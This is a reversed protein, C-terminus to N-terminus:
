LPHDRNGEPVIVPLDTSGYDIGRQSLLCTIQGRHHIQHMFIHQLLDSAVIRVTNGETSVFSLTEDLEAAAVGGVWDLIIQDLVGRRQTFRGLDRYYIDDPAAPQPFTSIERLYEAGLQNSAIRRFMILDAFMIHNWHAIISGFFGGTDLNLQEDSLLASSRLLRANMRQNYIALMVYTGREDADAQMPLVPMQGVSHESGSFKDMGEEMPRAPM